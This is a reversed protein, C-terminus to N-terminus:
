LVHLGRGLACALCPGAKMEMARCEQTEHGCESCRVDAFCAAATQSGAIRTCVIGLGPPQSFVLRSPRKNSGAAARLEWPKGWVPCGGLRTRIRCCRSTCNACRCWQAHREAQMTQPCGRYRLAISCYMDPMYPKFAPRPAFSYSGRLNRTMSIHGSMPPPFCQLPVRGDKGALCARRRHRPANALVITWSEMYRGATCM